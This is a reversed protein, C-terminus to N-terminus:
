SGIRFNVSITTTVDTPEGNLLYPKYRAEKVAEAAASQLMLPGSLVQLGVIRGHKDITATVVVTGEVHSAIAIRPYVPTIPALLLGKMVGTSVPLPETRKPTAAVVTPAIGPGVGPGLGISPTTSMGGGHYLSPATSAEVTSPAHSIMGGGTHEVMPAAAPATMATANTTMVPVPKPQVKVEPKKLELSTMKPAVSVLPLTEPWILPVVIFMTLVFCQLGVSALAFWRTRGASRREEPSVGLLSDEFMECGRQFIQGCGALFAYVGKSVAAEADTGDGLVQCVDSEWLVPHSGTELADFQLDPGLDKNPRVKCVKHPSPPVM